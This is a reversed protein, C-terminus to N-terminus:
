GWHRRIGGRFVLYRWGRCGAWRQALCPSPGGLLRRLPPSPFRGLLLFARKGKSCDMLQSRLMRLSFRTDPMCKRFVGRPGHSVLSSPCVSVAAFPPGLARQLAAAHRPGRRAPLLHWRVACGGGFQAGHLGRTTSGRPTRFLEPGRGMLTPVRSAADGCRYRRPVGEASSPTRTPASPRTGPAIFGLSM